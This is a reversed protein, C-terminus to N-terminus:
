NLNVFHELNIKNKLRKILLYVCIADFLSNHFKHKSKHCRKGVENKLEKEDIFTEVLFRLDYKKLRPYLNRYVKLTDLWNHKRIKKTIQDIEYPFYKNILNKEVHSNHAVIFSYNNIQLKQLIQLAKLGTEEESYTIQEDETILYGIERIGKSLSGEFDIYLIKRL